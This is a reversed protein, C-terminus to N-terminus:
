EEFLINIERGEFKQKLADEQTKEMVLGMWKETEKGDHHVLTFLSKPPLRHHIVKTICIQKVTNLEVDLLTRYKKTLLRKNFRINNHSIVVMDNENYWAWLAFLVFVLLGTILLSVFTFDQAFVLYLPAGIGISSLVMLVVLASPIRTLDEGSIRIENQQM